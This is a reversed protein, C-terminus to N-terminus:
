HLSFTLSCNMFAFRSELGLAAVAPVWSVWVTSRIRTGFLPLYLDRGCHPSQQAYASIRSWAESLRKSCHALASVVLCSAELSLWTCSRCWASCRIPYYWVYSISFCRLHYHNWLIYGVPNWCYLRMNLCRNFDTVSGFAFCPRCLHSVSASRPIKGHSMQDALPAM